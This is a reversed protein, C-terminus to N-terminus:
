SGRRLHRAGPGACGSHVFQRRKVGQSMTVRLIWHLELVSWTSQESITYRHRTAILACFDVGKTLPFQLALVCRLINEWIKEFYQGKKELVVM